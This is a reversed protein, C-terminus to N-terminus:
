PPLPPSSLPTSSADSVREFSRVEREREREREREGEEKETRKSEVVLVLDRAIVDERRGV